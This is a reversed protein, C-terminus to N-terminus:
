NPEEDKEVNLTLRDVVIIAGRRLMVIGVNASMEWMFAKEVHSTYLLICNM